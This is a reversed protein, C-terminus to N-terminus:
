HLGIWVLSPPEDLPSQAGPIQLPNLAGLQPRQHQGHASGGPSHGSEGRLGPCM